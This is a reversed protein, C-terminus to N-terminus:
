FLALSQSPSCPALWHTNAARLSSCAIFCFLKLGWLLYLPWHKFPLFLCFFCMFLNSPSLKTHTHTHIKPTSFITKVRDRECTKWLDSTLELQSLPSDQGLVLLDWILGSWLSFRVQTSCCVLLCVPTLCLVTMWCGSLTVSCSGRHVWDCKEIMLHLASRISVSDNM